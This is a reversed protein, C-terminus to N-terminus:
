ERSQGTIKGKNPSSDKYKQLLPLQLSILLCLFQIVIQLMICRIVHGVYNSSAEFTDSLGKFAESILVFLNKLFGAGIHAKKM